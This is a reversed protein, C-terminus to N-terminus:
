SSLRPSRLRPEPAPAEPWRPEPGGAAGAIGSGLLGAASGGAAAVGPPPAIRVLRGERASQEAAEVLRATRVADALTTPPAGAGRLAAFFRRFFLDGVMGGYSTSAPMAFVEDRAPSAGAPPRSEIQLRPTLDPWVIRGERGNFALYSDYGAMNVYGGGSFALAYGAHFTGIAGSRFRLTLAVTDEVDIAEGSRTAMLAGVDTIEDGAVHHLLDLCHCGLWLLIGGGSQARRFLWSEPQRFRVQTTLFRVEMSLLAGIEGAAIRTRAAEMCPHLRRSTLGSDTPPPRASAAVPGETGGGQGADRRAVGMGRPRRGWRWGVTEGETPPPRASAAVPGETGGREQLPHFYVGQHGPAVDFRSGPEVGGRHKGTLFGGGLPSYTIIAVQHSACLEVLPADVDRVALNNNNQLVRLPQLGHERQLALAARLQPTTFNSVGLARVRGSKVLRDLAQWAAPTEAGPDWKHLYLVDIVAVGLRKASATVATDIAEPTYPPYIKTAVILRRPDPRRSALWAGVVQESRGASYTAATDILTLNKAVAHDMLAFAADQDIERAFTSSGLCIPSLAPASPYLTIIKM